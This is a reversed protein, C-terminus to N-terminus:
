RAATVPGIPRTSVAVHDWRQYQDLVWPGNPPCSNPENDCRQHYVTLRVVNFQRNADKDRLWRMDTHQMRLTPEDIPKSAEDVWLRTVGDSKGPTNLKVYWEFYYWRGPQLTINRRQNQFRNIRNYENNTETTDVDQYNAVFPLGPGSDKEAPRHNRNTAVYATIANTEDHLMVSKDELSGWVFPNSIYQYWRVYFERQPPFSGRADHGYYGWEKDFSLKNSWAACRDGFGVGEGCRVFESIPFMGQHGGIDWRREFDPQEFDDCMLFDPRSKAETCSTVGRPGALSSVCNAEFVLGGMILAGILAADRGTM